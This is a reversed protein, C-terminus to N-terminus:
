EKSIIKLYDSIKKLEDVLRNYCALEMEFMTRTKRIVLINSAPGNLIEISYGRGNASGFTESRNQLEVIKRADESTGFLYSMEPQNSHLFTEIRPHSSFRAHPMRWSFTPAHQVRMELWARREKLIKAILHSKILEKNEDNKSATKTANHYLKWIEDVLDRFEGRENMRKVVIAAMRSLLTRTYQDHFLRLCKFALILHHVPQQLYRDIWHELKDLQNVLVLVRIGLYEQALETMKNM